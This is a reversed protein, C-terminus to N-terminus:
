GFTSGMKCLAVLVKWLGSDRAQALKPGATDLKAENIDAKPFAGLRRFPRYPPAYRVNFDFSVVCAPVACVVFDGM